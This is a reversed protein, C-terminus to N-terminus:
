AKGLSVLWDGLDTANTGTALGLVGVGVIVGATITIGKGINGGRAAWLVAAGACLVLVTILNDKIWQTLGATGFGSAPPAPPNAAIVVDILTRM